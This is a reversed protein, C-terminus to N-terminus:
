RHDRRPHHHPFGYTGSRRPWDWDCLCVQHRGGRIRRLHDLLSKRYRMAAFRQLQPRYWPIVITLNRSPNTVPTIRTKRVIKRSKKESSRNRSFGGTIASLETSTSCRDPSSGSFGGTSNGSKRLLAGGATVTVASHLDSSDAAPSGCMLATTTSGSPM